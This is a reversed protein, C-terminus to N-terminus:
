SSRRVGQRAASDRQGPRFQGAQCGFVQVRLRAWRLHQLRPRTAGGLMAYLPQGTAKGQIDWLAVDVASNARMEASTGTFGVYPRMQRNLAEIRSPDQGLLAPAVRDHIDAEIAACGFWSEGLGIIGEDTHVRIWILTARSRLRITEIKTIKM